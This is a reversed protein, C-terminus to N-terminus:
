AFYRYLDFHDFLARLQQDNGDKDVNEVSLAIDQVSEERYLEHWLDFSNHIRLIPTGKILSMAKFWLDDASPSLQLFTNEDFVQEPLSHPPYLVGSFGEPIFTNSIEDIENPIDYTFTNFDNLKRTSSFSLTLAARCCIAGPHNRHATVLQEVTDFPYFLDDDVTIINAEPFDRLAPLLKTFSRQDRVFRVELGRKVQSQLILPLQAVSQFEKDGLYLVIHNPRLTQQLLSEITTYVTHIRKGHTTLTVVVPCDAIADGTVGRESSHLASWVLQEKRVVYEIQRQHARKQNEPFCFNWLGNRFGKIIQSVSAM